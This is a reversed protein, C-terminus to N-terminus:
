ALWVTLQWNDTTPQRNDTTLQWNDTTLQWYVVCWCRWNLGPTLQNVIRERERERETEREGESERERESERKRFISLYIFLYFQWQNRCQYLRSQTQASMNKIIEILLQHKKIPVASSLVTAAPTRCAVLGPSHYTPPTQSLFVQVYGLCWSVLHFDSSNNREVGREM